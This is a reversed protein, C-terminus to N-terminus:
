NAQDGVPTRLRSILDSFADTDDRGLKLLDNVAARYERWLSANQPDADVASALSRVLHVLAEDQETLRANDALIKLTADAAQRNTSPM